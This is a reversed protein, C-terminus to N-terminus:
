YLCSRLYRDNEFQPVLWHSNAWMKNCSNVGAFVSQEDELLIYPQFFSFFTNKFHGLKLSMLTQTLKQKHRLSWHKYLSLNTRGSHLCFMIDGLPCALQALIIDRPPFSVAGAHWGVLNTFLASYCVKIEVFMPLSALCSKTKM